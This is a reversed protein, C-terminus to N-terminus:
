QLDIAQLLIEPEPQSAFAERMKNYPKITAASCIKALPCWACLFSPKYEFNNNEIMINLNEDTREVDSIIKKKLAEDSLNVPVIEKALPYILRAGSIKFGQDKLITAYIMQQRQEALGEDSKTKPNWHKVKGTNHTPTMLKGCLYLSDPADVKICQTPVSEVPEMMRIYRHLAEDSEYKDNQLFGLVQDAKESLQFPNFGIPSFGIEYCDKKKLVNPTIGLSVIIESFEESLKESSTCFVVQKRQSQWFGNVDLLGKLLEIRQKVSSRLYELPIHKESEGWTAQFIASIEEVNHDESSINEVETKEKGLWVGLIYPDIPLDKESFATIPKPNEIRICNKDNKKWLNYMTDADVVIKQSSEGKADSLVISWLHVNDCVVSSGDMFDIRYCPRHHVQSKNLVKVTAGDVGLLSDGIKVEGMTTWGEPTPLLTDLSLGKWDEIMLSGDNKRTDVVLRDVFGLIDRTTNGIKGKVFLELGKRTKGKVEIEAVQVREPRAGMAYYNQVAKDLWEIVDPNDKLDKFDDSSLVEGSLDEIKARTRDQPELTFLEEMVKHFISGRRAANDPEEEVLDRVVFTESLWRAACGDLGTIMSPSLSKNELKDAVEESLVHVGQQDVVLQKKFDNNTMM